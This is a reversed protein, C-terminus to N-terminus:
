ELYIIIHNIINVYISLIYYVNNHYLTTYTYYIVIIINKFPLRALYNLTFMKFINM